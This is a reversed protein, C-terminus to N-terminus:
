AMSKWLKGEDAFLGMLRAANSYNLILIIIVFIHMEGIPVPKTWLLATDALIWSLM